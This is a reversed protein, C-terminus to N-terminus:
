IGFLRSKSQEEVWWPAAVTWFDEVRETFGATGRSRKEVANTGKNEEKEKTQVVVV